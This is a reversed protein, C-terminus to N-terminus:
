NIPIPVVDPDKVIFHCENPPAVWNIADYWFQKTQYLTKVSHFFGEADDTAPQWCPNYQDKQRNPPDGTPVWQNALLIWEDGFALIRGKGEVEYAVAMNGGSVPDKAIVHAGSPAKIAWGTYAGVYDLEYTLGALAGTQAQFRVPTTIIADSSQTWALCNKLDATGEKYYVPVQQGNEATKPAAYSMGAFEILQSTAAPEADTSMFGTLSVIGGGTEKVWKAVAAKEAASFTWTNVNAVLLIDYNALFAADLTPQTSVRTVTATGDSNSNLWDIFPKTDKANAASELTGLLALRLCTCKGDSDCVKERVPLDREDAKAPTTALTNVIIDNGGSGSSNRSTSSPDGGQNAVANTSPGGGAAKAGQNSAGGRASASPSTSGAGADDLPPTTGEVGSGDDGSTDGGGGAASGPRSKTPEGGGCGYSAVVLSSIVAFALRRMM